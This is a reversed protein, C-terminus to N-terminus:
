ATAHEEKKAQAMLEYVSIGTGAPNLSMLAVASFLAMLPDIKAWGSAQKTILMANGKPEIKANSVCWTMMASGDHILAGEALKRETTKISGSLKWGQSIGIVKEQDVGAEIMADLVGGIGAPDVGVKDLLGAQDIQAVIAAVQQVDDGMQEVLTLDGDKAFDRFRAAESKRRELVSPHAWAHHWCLWERTEADRGIVALGLLDDLGGGDIGVDIIECRGIIASLTIGTRGQAQWFPAGAWNDSRLAMGIEVNLHKSLFGLTSEEGSEEVKKLERELFEKDVSLGLNPNTLYFNEPKRHAGSTIIEPPHEYLVPCFKPDNIRGDRVGRAYQLKQKFVGAPAENSMTTLYIAFGEPRSALGGCAERLMDEANARKGFLYLEDVLIGTAKKGGVTDTEAAIVKLTGGNRRNTITRIHDQVQFLDSLEPDKRVMDRAPLFSNSAIEVTPALIVFEASERWNRILATVMLGAALGSKFNKKSVSLLWETMMRRGSDPEYAGFVSAVFDFVWPRCAEGM